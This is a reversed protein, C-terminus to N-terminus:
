ECRTHCQFFYFGHQIFFVFYGQSFIIYNFFLPDFSLHMGPNTKIMVPFFFDVLFFCVICEVWLLSLRFYVQMLSWVFYFTFYIFQIYIYALHRPSPDSARAPNCLSLSFFKRQGTLLQISQRCLSWTAACNCCEDVLFQVSCIPDTEVAWICHARPQYSRNLCYIVFM